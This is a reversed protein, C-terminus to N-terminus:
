SMVPPVTVPLLLVIELAPSTLWLILTLASACGVIELLKMEDDSTSPAADVAMSMVTLLLLGTAIGLKLRVSTKGPPALLMILIAAAGPAIELQESPLTGAKLGVAPALVSLADPM